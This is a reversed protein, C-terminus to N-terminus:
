VLPEGTCESWLRRARAWAGLMRRMIDKDRGGAEWASAAADFANAKEYLDPARAHGGDALARMKESLPTPAPM